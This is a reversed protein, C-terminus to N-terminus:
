ANMEDRAEQFPAYRLNGIEPYADRIAWIACSPIVKRVGRGLRNHVWWTYQRYGAYRLSRNSININDGRMNNLMRLVTKLVERQLCVAGFNGNETICVLNSFYDDPVEGAERCCKSEEETEMCRCKGCVCWSTNGKRTQSPRLQADDNRQQTSSNRPVPEFDYPRLDGVNLDLTEEEPESSSSVHDYNYSMIGHLLTQSNRTCIFMCVTWASYISNWRKNRKFCYDFRM